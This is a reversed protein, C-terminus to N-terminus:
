LSCSRSKNVSTPGPPTWCSAGLSFVVPEVLQELSSPATELSMGPSVASAITFLRCSMRLDPCDCRAVEAVATCPLDELDWRTMDSVSDVLSTAVPRSWRAPLSLKTSKAPESRRLRLSATPSRNLSAVCMLLDSLASASTTVARSRLTPCTGYRFELNVCKSWSESPPCCPHLVTKMTATGGVLSARASVKCEKCNLWRKLANASGMFSHLERSCVPKPLLKLM